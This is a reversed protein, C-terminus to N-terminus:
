SFRVGFSHELIQPFECTDIDSTGSRYTFIAFSVDERIEIDHLQYVKIYQNHCRPIFTDGITLIKNKTYNDDTMDANMFQSNGTTSFTVEVTNKDIIQIQKILGLSVEKQDYLLDLYGYSYPILQDWYDQKEKIRKEDILPICVYRVDKTKTCDYGQQKFKESCKKDCLEPINEFEIHYLPASYSYFDQITGYNLSLLIVPVLITSIVFLKNFNNM